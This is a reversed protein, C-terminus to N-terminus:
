AAFADKDGAVGPHGAGCDHPPEFAFVAVDDGRRSLIEVQPLRVRDITEHRLCLGIRDEVGGSPDAADAGVARKGGVEDVVIEGDREIDNAGRM